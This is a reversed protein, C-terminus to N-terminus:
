EGDIAHRVPFTVRFISGGVPNPRFSCTAHMQDALSSVIYLGLGSGKTGNPPAKAGRSFKGFLMGHENAPIGIGNDAVEVFAGGTDFGTSATIAKGSDSYRIANSLLNDLIQALSEGHAMGHIAARAPQVEIRIGSASALPGTRRVAETLYASLDCSKLAPAVRGELEHMDLLRTVLAIMDDVSRRSASLLRDLAGPTAPPRIRALDLVSRLGLLPSRLDHATIAMLENLDANKRELADNQRMVRDRHYWGIQQIRHISARGFCGAVVAITGSLLPYWKMSFPIPLPVVWAVFVAYTFVGIWAFRRPSITFFPAAALFAIPYGLSITHGTGHVANICGAANVCLLAFLVFGEALWRDATSARRQARHAEFGFTAAGAVAVIALIWLYPVGRFLNLYAEVLTDTAVLVSGLQIRRNNIRRDDEVPDNSYGNVPDLLRGLLRQRDSDIPM